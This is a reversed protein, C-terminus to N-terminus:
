IKLINEAQETLIRESKKQRKQKKKREKEYSHQV